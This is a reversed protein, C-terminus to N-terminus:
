LLPETAPDNEASGCSPCSAEDGEHLTFTDGCSRCRVVVLESM